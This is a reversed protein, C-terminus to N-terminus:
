PAAEPVVTAEPRLVVEEEDSFLSGAVYDYGVQLLSIPLVGTDAALSLPLDIAWVFAVESTRAGGLSFRAGSYLPSIEEGEWNMPGEIKTIITGCGCLGSLLLALMTRKLLRSMKKMAEKAAPSAAPVSLECAEIARLEITGTEITWM